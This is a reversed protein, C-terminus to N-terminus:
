KVIAKAIAGVVNSYTDKGENKARNCFEKATGWFCGAEVMVAKGASFIKIQRGSGDINASSMYREFVFGRYSCGAGFKSYAGFESGAGFKSYAGFESEAGFKSYAGFESGAGFKSYAGFESEAGFESRDGFKSWAGFESRYGFESEAGFESRDDFESYDGFEANNFQGNKDTIKKM